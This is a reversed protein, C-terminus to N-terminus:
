EVAAKAAAMLVDAHLRLRYDPHAYPFDVRGSKGIVFVAPVPLLTHEQGSRDWLDLDYQNKYQTFLERTADFAVGFARAALMEADSALIFDLELKKEAEAVYPPKDPSIAVVRYGLAKWEKSRDRLQM